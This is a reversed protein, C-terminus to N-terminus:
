DKRIMDPALDDGAYWQPTCEVDKAAVRVLAIATFHLLRHFLESGKDYWLDAFKCHLLEHVLTVMVGHPHWNIAPDAIKIDATFSAADLITEGHIAAWDEGHDDPVPIADVITARIVWDHLSLIDAWYTLRIALEKNTM